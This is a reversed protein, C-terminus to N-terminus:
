KLVAKVPIGITKLIGTLVSAWVFSFFNSNDGRSVSFQPKRVDNGKGPNANQILFTNAFLSTFTKKKLKDDGNKKKLPNLHLDTYNFSVTGNITFDNGRLHATGSQMEGKKVSFLGLPAAVPNVIEKHLTDMFLDATFAGSHVKALDFKFNATLPVKHM